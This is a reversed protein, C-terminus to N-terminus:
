NKGGLKRLAHLAEDQDKGWVGKLTYQLDTVATNIIQNKLQITPVLRQKVIGERKVKIVVLTQSANQSWTTRCHKSHENRPERKNSEGIDTTKVSNEIM